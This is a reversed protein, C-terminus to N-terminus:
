ENVVFSNAGLCTQGEKMPATRQVTIRAGVLPAGDARLEARHLRGIADMRVPPGIRGDAFVPAALMIAGPSRVVRAVMVLAERRAPFSLRLSAGANCYRWGDAAPEATHPAARATANEYLSWTLGAGAEWRPRVLRLLAGHQYMWPAPSELPGADKCEYTHGAVIWRHRPLEDAWWPTRVQRGECPVPDLMTEPRQLAALVYTSWYGGLLPAGPARAELRAALRAPAVPHAARAPPVRAVGAALGAVGALALVGRWRRNLWPLSAAVGVLTLLGALTGFVFLLSFYRVSFQNMRVHRMLFFVPLQAAAIAWCALVLAAGEVRWAPVRGGRARWLVVLAACAGITAVVLLPMSHSTTLTKAVRRANAELHGHDIQMGTRFYQGYRAHSYLDFAARLVREAVMGGGVVLGGEVCRRFASRDPEASLVRARVAEICAVILLLPGSLPSTWHALFVAFATAIRLPWRGRGASGSHEAIRRLGWWALMMATIQWAYPHAADFLWTRSDTDGVIVAAMLGGAAWGWAGALRAMVVAAALVWAAAVLHLAAYDFAHGFLQGIARMLLLPWTGLRDQGWYYVDFLSWERARMMLVPIALDSNFASPRPFLARSIWPAALVPLCALVAWSIRIWRGGLTIAALRGRVWGRRGGVMDALRGGTTTSEPAPPPHLAEDTMSAPSRLAPLPSAYICGNPDGQL